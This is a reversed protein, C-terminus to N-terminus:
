CLLLSSCGKTVFATYKSVENEHILFQKKKLKKEQLTSVFLAEEKKTLDIHRRINNLHRSHNMKLNVIIQSQKKKEYLKIGNSLKNISAAMRNIKTNEKLLIYGNFTISKKAKM